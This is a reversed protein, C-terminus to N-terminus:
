EVVIKASLAGQAHLAQFIAILDSPSVGMANLTKALTQVSLPKPKELLHLVGSGEHIGIESSKDSSTEGGGFPTNPQNTKDIERTVITLSGHSIAVTSITVNAGVVITGTRESILVIAENDTTVDLKGISDIFGTVGLKGVTEPMVVIITGKDKAYATGPHKKNIAAAINVSTTYNPNALQFTIKGGEVIQALEEKEVKAGKPIKGVTPHAKVVSATDAGASYGGGVLVSGSALAYVQGDAGKLQTRLLQGGKLSSAAVATVTVDINTDKRSFPPLEATIIVSAINKSTVDNPDITIGEFKSMYSAYARKTQISTDGSGNLGIVLGYGTLTNSRQGKIEVIDIIREARAISSSALLISIMIILKSRM